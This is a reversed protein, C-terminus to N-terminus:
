QQMNEWLGILNNETDRFEAYFGWSAVESKPAVLKGGASIVKDISDDISAVNIVVAPYEEPKERKYIAGNIAGPEKPMGTEDTEVTTALRYDKEMGIDQVDWGFIDEYFSEARDVDDAPIHFHTVKDM